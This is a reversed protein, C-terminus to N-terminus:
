IYFDSMAFIIGKVGNINGICQGVLSRSLLNPRNICPTVIRVIVYIVQIYFKIIIISLLGLLIWSFTIGM